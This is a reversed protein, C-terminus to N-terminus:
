KPLRIREGAVPPRTGLDNLGVLADVYARLDMGEPAYRDAVDWLTQGPQVVVARPASSRSAPATGGGMLTLGIVSAVVVALGARRRRVQAKARARARATPFAYVVADRQVEFDERRLAM